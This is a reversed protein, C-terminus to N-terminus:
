IILKEMRSLEKGKADVIILVHYNQFLIFDKPLSDEFTKKLYDYTKSRADLKYKEVFRKTYEDIVFSPRDLAYLLLTDATEPGIGYVKLLKERLINKDDTLMKKIGGYENVVFKSFSQLRKPKTTYFGAPRILNTTESLDTLKTIKELQYINASVLNNLALNANRWSTRQTLLAGLAILERTKLDKKKSCWDPWLEEPDGYKKLLEKYLSFIKTM